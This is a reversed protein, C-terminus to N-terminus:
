AILYFGTECTYFQCQKNETQHNKVGKLFSLVGAGAGLRRKVSVRSVDGTGIWLPSILDHRCNTQLPANVISM